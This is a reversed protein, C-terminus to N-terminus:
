LRSGPGAPTDRLSSGVGLLRQGSLRGLTPSLQLNPHKSGEVLFSGYKSLLLSQTVGGSVGHAYVDGRLIPAM